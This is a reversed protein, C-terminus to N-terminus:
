HGPIRQVASLYCSRISHIRTYLAPTPDPSYYLYISSFNREETWLFSINPKQLAGKPHIPKSVSQNQPMVDPTMSVWKPCGLHVSSNKDVREGYEHCFFWYIMFSIVNTTFDWNYRMSLLAISKKKLTFLKGLFRWSLRETSCLPNNQFDNWHNETWVIFTKWFIHTECFFFTMTKSHFSHSYINCTNLM